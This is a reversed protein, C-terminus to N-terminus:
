QGRFAHRDIPEGGLSPCGSFFAEHSKPFTRWDLYHPLM